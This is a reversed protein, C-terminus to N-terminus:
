SFFIMQNAQQPASMLQLHTYEELIRHVAAVSYLDTLLRIIIFSHSTGHNKPNLKKSTMVALRNLNEKGLLGQLNILSM